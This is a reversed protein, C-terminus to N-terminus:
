PCTEIRDVYRVNVQCIAEGDFGCSHGGQRETCDWQPHPAAHASRLQFEGQTFGVCVLQAESPARALADAQAAQESPFPRLASRVVLPLRREEPMWREKVEFKVAALRAQGEVAHAGQHYTSVYSRLAQCDGARRSSWLAEEERSPVGGLNMARCAVRVGPTKCVVKAFEPLGAILSVVTALAAFSGGAWAFKNRRGSYRRLRIPRGEILSRAAAVIYQFGLDSDDGNWTILDLAQYEGFGLPIVVDDIRIQLLTGRQRARNAEDIVFDGALGTSAVSWLVLVCKASELETLIRERWRDGGPIGRDWWVDLGARTLANLLTAARDEDERKYSIFIDSM